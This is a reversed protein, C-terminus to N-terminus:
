RGGQGKRRAWLHAEHQHTPPRAPQVLTPPGAAPASHQGVRQHVGSCHSRLGQEVKEPIELTSFILCQNTFFFFQNVALSYFYKGLIHFYYLTHSTHPAHFAWFSGFIDFFFPGFLFSLSCFVISANKIQVGWTKHSAGLGWGWLSQWGRPQPSPTHVNAIGRGWLATWSQLM